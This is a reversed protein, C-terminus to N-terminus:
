KDSLKEFVTEGNLNDFCISYKRWIDLRGLFPATSSELFICRVPLAENGLQIKIMGPYGYVKENGIGGVETRNKPNVDIKFWPGYRALPLVTTDAGSDVLFKITRPGHLTEVLINVSPDPLRGEQIIKEFYPFKIRM